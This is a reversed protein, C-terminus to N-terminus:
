KSGAQGLLNIRMDSLLEQAIVLRINPDDDILLVRVPHGPQGKLFDPWMWQLVTSPPPHTSANASAASMFESTKLSTPANTLMPIVPRGREMNSFNRVYM